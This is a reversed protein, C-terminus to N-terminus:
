LKSSTCVDQGLIKSTDLQYRLDRRYIQVHKEM